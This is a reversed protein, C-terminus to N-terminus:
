TAHAGTCCAAFSVAGIGRSPGSKRASYLSPVYFRVESILLFFLADFDSMDYLVMDIRASSPVFNYSVLGIVVELYRM